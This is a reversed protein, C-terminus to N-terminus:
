YDTVKAVTIVLTNRYNEFISFDTRLFLALNRAAMALFDVIYM